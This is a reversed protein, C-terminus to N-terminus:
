RAAHSLRMIEGIIGTPQMPMEPLPLLVAETAAERTMGLSMLIRSTLQEAYGSECTEALLSHLGGLMPGVVLSSAISEPMQNFSGQKIALRVDRDLNALFIGPSHEMPWGSQLMLKGLIPMGSGINLVLRTGTAVRIAANPISSVFHDGIPSLEAELRASLQQYVEGLSDFYKYFTGRSVKELNVLDNVLIDRPPKTALMHLAASLLRSEMEARRRAAVRPRHDTSNSTKKQLYIPLRLLNFEASM